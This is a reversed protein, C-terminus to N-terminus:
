DDVFLKTTKQFSLLTRCTMLTLQLYDNMFDQGILTWRRKTNTMVAAMNKLGTINCREM